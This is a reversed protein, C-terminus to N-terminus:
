DIEIKKSFPCFTFLLPHASKKARSGGGGDSKKAYGFNRNTLGSKSPDPIPERRSSQPVFCASAAPTGQQSSLVSETRGEERRERRELEIEDSGACEHTALSVGGVRKKSVPDGERRGVLIPPRSNTRPRRPLDALLFAESAQFSSPSNVLYIM